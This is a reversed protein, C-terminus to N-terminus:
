KPHVNWYTYPNIWTTLGGMYAIFGTLRDNRVPEIADPRCIMYHPLDTAMMEQMKWCLAKRKETDPEGHYANLTKDFEPNNYYATNWGSSNEDDWSRMFEWVWSAYNGPEETGLALDFGMGQPYYYTDLYTDLDLALIRIEIGIGKMQERILSVMKVHEATDSPVMFKFSLDKGTKPDNRVGNEDTDLYGNDDLIKNSKVIDFEYQPLNPNYESLEPYIFSDQSKAFGHYVMKIIRDKDIGHVLARKVNIDRLPGDMYHNFTLWILAIGPNVMVDINQNKELIKKALPSVGGYGVMDIENKKLAMNRADGSGYAKFVIRDVRPRDEWYSDFKEFVIFEGAKFESLKFPGSGIAKKNSFKEIDYKNRRWQHEPLIPFWNFPPYGSNLPTVLEFEVTYDDIVTVSDKVTKADFYDWIPNSKPLYEYSFAFDKATVPKGDHFVMGERVFVRWTKNDTTEFGNSARPSHKYAPPNDFHWSQDYVLQWWMCGMDEYQWSDDCSLSKLM